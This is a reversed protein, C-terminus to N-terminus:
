GIYVIYDKWSITRALNYSQLTLIFVLIIYSTKDNYVYIYIMVM